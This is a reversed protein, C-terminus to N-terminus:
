GGDFWFDFDDVECLALIKSFVAVEGVREKGGDFFVKVKAVLSEDVVIATTGGGHGDAFVAAPLGEAGVTEKRQSEVGVRIREDAVSAPMLFFDRGRAGITVVGTDEMFAEAGFEEFSFEFLEEGFNGDSAEVGVVFFAVREVSEIVFDFVAVNFNDDAGLGNRATEVKRMEGGNADDLGVGTKRKRIEASFFFSKLKESLDDTADAAAMEVGGRDKNLGILGGRGDDVEGGVGVVEAEVVIENFFSAVPLERGKSIEGFDDDSVFSFLGGDFFNACERFRQVIKNSPVVHGRNFEGGRHRTKVLAGSGAIRPLNNEFAFFM